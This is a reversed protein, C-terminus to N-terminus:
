FRPPLYNGRFSCASYRTRLLAAWNQKKTKRKKHKFWNQILLLARDGHCDRCAAARHHKEKEQETHGQDVNFPRKRNARVAKLPIAFVTDAKTALCRPKVHGILEVISHVGVLVNPQRRGKAKEEKEQSIRRRRRRRERERERERERM